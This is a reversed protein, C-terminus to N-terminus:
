EVVTVTIAGKTDVMAKEGTVPDYARIVLEGNYGGVMLREKAYRELSLTDVGHGPTIQDSKAVVLDGIMILIAVNQNSANPNAYLLTVKNESLDVKVATSYTVNIAGGGEPSEIKDSNDGEIPKQNDETGQPPYDPPIPKAGSGRFFVAWMTIFFAFLLLIVLIATIIILHRKTNNDM